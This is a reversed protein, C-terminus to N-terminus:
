VHYGHRAQSARILDLAQHGLGDACDAAAQAVEKEIQAYVQQELNGTKVDADLVAQYRHIKDSCAAGAPLNAFQAAAPAPAPPQPPPASAVPTGANCGALGVALALLGFRSTNFGFIAAM